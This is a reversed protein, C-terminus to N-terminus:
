LTLQVNTHKILVESHNVIALNKFMGSVTYKYVWILPILCKM